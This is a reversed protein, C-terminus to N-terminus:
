HQQLQFIVEYGNRATLSCLSFLRCFPALGNESKCGLNNYQITTSVIAAWASLSTTRQKSTDQRPYRKIPYANISIESLFHVFIQSSIKRLVLRLVGCPKERLRALVVVFYQPFCVAFITQKKNSNLILYEHKAQSRRYIM